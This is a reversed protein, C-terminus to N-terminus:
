SVFKACDVTDTFVRVGVAGSEDVSSAVIAYSAEVGVGFTLAPFKGGVTEVAVDNLLVLADLAGITEEKLGVALALCM